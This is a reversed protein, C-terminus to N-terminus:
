VLTREIQRNKDNGMKQQQGNEEKKPDHYRDHYPKAVPTRHKVPLLADTFVSFNEGHQFKARHDKSSVL